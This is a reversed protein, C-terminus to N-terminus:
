EAVGGDKIEVPMLFELKSEPNSIGKFRGDYRQLDFDRVCDFPSAALWASINKCAVDFGGLSFRHTYVAYNAAPVQKVFMTDPIEEAKSVNVAVMCYFPRGPEWGTSYGHYEYRVNGNKHQILSEYEGFEVWLEHIDRGYSVMGVLTLEGIEEIHWCPDNGAAPLDSLGEIHQKLANWSSFGYELALAFQVENLKLDASLIDAHTSRSFRHLNRLLTCVQPDGKKQAKLLDKAQRRLQDLDPREPLSTTM